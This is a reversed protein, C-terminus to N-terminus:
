RAVERIFRRLLELGPRSSKEPHFQVGLVRGRRVASPFRDGEHTTWGVVERSDDARGVYSHAFYAADLSLAGEVQNWGMHPVRRAALRTVRGPFYGLGRGPGEDSADFLLQLGLCVGIAPLGRELASAMEERGPALREAAPGFGGVGPLVLVDTDLAARPDQTIRVEADDVALAKALSHLNGAGYDFLTIRM